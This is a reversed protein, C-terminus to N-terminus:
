ENELDKHGGLKRNLKEGFTEPAGAALEKERMEEKQIDKLMKDLLEEATFRDDYKDYPLEEDGKDFVVYRVALYIMFIFAGVTLWLWLDPNSYGLDYLQKVVKQIADAVTEGAMILSGSTDELFNGTNPYQADMVGILVICLPMMPIVVAIILRWFFHLLNGALKPVMSFIEFIMFVLGFFLAVFATGQIFGWKVITDYNYSIYSITMFLAIGMFILRVVNKRRHEHYKILEKENMDQTDEIIIEKKKDRYIKIYPIAFFLGFLGFFIAIYFVTKGWGMLGAEEMAAMTNYRWNFLFTGILAAILAIFSNTKWSRVKKKNDDTLMPIAVLAETGIEAITDIGETM